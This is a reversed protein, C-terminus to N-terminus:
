QNINVSKYKERIKNITEFVESHKPNAIDLRAATEEVYENMDRISENVQYDIDILTAIINLLKDREIILEMANQYELNAKEVEDQSAPVPNAATAKVMELNDLGAALKKDALADVENIKKAADSNFVGNDVSQKLQDLFESM